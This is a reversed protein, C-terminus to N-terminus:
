VKGSKIGNAIDSPLSELSRGLALLLAEPGGAGGGSGAIPVCSEVVVVYLHLVRHPLLLVEQTATTAVVQGMTPSAKGEGELQRKLQGIQELLVQSLLSNLLGLAAVM